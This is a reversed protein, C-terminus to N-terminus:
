VFEHPPAAKPDQGLIAREAQRQVVRLTEELPRLNAQLRKRDVALGPVLHALADAFGVCSHLDDEATRLVAILAVVEVQQLRSELLLCGTLGGLAGHQLAGIGLSDLRQRGARADCTYLIEPKAAEHSVAGDLTVIRELGHHKAWAVSARALQRMLFPNPSIESRMLALRKKADAHIRVPFRPKGAHVMAIPAFRDSDASAVHDMGAEELLFDTLLMPAVGLSPVSVVLTGGALDPVKFDHISVDNAM